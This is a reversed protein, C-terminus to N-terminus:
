YFGCHRVPRKCFESGWFGLVEVGLVKFGKFELAQFGFARFGQVGFGEVQVQMNLGLSRPPDM